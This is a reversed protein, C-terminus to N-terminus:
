IYLIYYTCIASFFSSSHVAHVRSTGLTHRFNGNLFVAQEPQRAVYMCRKVRMDEVLQLIQAKLIKRANRAWAHNFSLCRCTTTGMSCLHVQTCYGWSIQFAAQWLLAASGNSTRRWPRPFIAAQVHSLEEQKTLKRSLWAVISLALDMMWLWSFDVEWM